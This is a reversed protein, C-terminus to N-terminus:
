KRLIQELYFKKVGSAGKTGMIILDVPNEQSYELISSILGGVMTKGTLSVQAFKPDQKLNNIISKLKNKSFDDLSTIAEDIKTAFDYPIPIVNLLVLESGTRVSFDM